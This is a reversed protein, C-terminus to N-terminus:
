CRVPRHNRSDSGSRKRGPPLLCVKAGVQGWWFLEWVSVDFSFQTKQLVVDDVELPFQKQMWHLRNVVSHHEVMVGKPKGTSGSTYIVYAMDDAKSVPTLNAEAKTLSDSEDLLMSEGSFPISGGIHAQKLLWRTRSDKLMFGIREEPYDPDIPLYAGGAKLIGLIGVLMEISRETMLAVIHDPKVGKGRLDRALRNARANLERYTVKRGEFLVATQDPTREVQEEFLQHLTKNRPYRTETGNFEFQLQNKEAETLLDIEGLKIDPDEAVQELLRRWHGTWREITEREFLETSYEWSFRLLGSEENAFLSLDFKAITHEQEYPSLTLGDMSLKTKETNQLAFMVDFVPNRNIDRRVGLKEVLAEFQVEQHEFAGLATEKIEEIFERFTKHGEPRGRMPLTNVFMGAINELSAHPRGAVPSGVIIDDQGSYRSLLTQYAALLVIYLTSESKQVLLELKQKLKPEAATEIINGSFSQEAPRPKDALCSCFPCNVPFSPGALINRSQQVGRKGDAYTAM